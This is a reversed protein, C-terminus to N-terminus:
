SEGPHRAGRATDAHDSDGTTHQEFARRAEEHERAEAEIRAEWDAEFKLQLEQERTWSRRNRQMSKQSRIYDLLFFLSLTFIFISFIVAAVVM